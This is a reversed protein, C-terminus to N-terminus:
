TEEVLAVEEAARSIHLAYPLIWGGWGWTLGNVSRPERTM